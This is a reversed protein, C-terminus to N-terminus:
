RGQAKGSAKHRRLLSQLERVIEDISSRQSDLAIRDVFAPSYEALDDQTVEHWIPLIVKEGTRERAFLGNLEHETWRKKKLYAKSLVVIAFKSKM